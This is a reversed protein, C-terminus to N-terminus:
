DRRYMTQLVVMSGDTAGFGRATVRYLEIQKKQEDSALSGAPDDLLLQEIVYQPQKSVLGLSGSRTSWGTSTKDRWNPPNCDTGTAGAACFKYRGSTGNFTGITAGQLYTEATRIGAEAGQFASNTDRTGGAMREQLTASQMAGAGIITLLLMFILSLILVSGRQRSPSLRHRTM